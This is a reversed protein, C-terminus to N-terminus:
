ITFKIKMALTPNNGSWEKNIVISRGPWSYFFLFNTFFWIQLGSRWNTWKQYNKKNEAFYVKKIIWTEFVTWEIFLCCLSGIATTWFSSSALLPGLYWLLWAHAPKEAFREDLDNKYTKIEFDFSQCEFFEAANVRPCRM